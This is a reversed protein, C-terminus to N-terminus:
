PAVAGALVSRYFVALEPAGREAVALAATREADSAPTRCVALFQRHHARVQEFDSSRGVDRDGIVAFITEPKRRGRVAVTDLELAALDPVRALATESVIITVGYTKCLGELRSALNVADGIATYDFRQRSGLNGVIARGTNIGVGVALRAADLGVLSAMEGDLERVAAAMELAARIAHETHDPDDLPANWFAMVADGMYKDVTGGHRLVPETLVTLLRNVVRVLDGPRDALREAFATFGRMDCFLVTLERQEGGLKLLGPDRVIRDVMEPALYQRFARQVARRRARELLFRLPFACGIGAVVGVAPVVPPLWLGAGLLGASGGALAAVAGAGVAAGGLPGLRMAAVVGLGGLFASLLALFAGPVPAVMESSLALEAALAHFQVGSLIGGPDPNGDLPTMECPPTAQKAAIPVPDVFRYPSPKRDEEALWTGLFVLRGGLVARLGEPAGRACALVDALSLVPVAGPHVKPGLVIDGAAPQGALTLAAGVLTPLADGEATTTATPVRRFVGDPEPRLEMLGLSADGYGSAAVFSAAPLSGASRGLVVRGRGRYLARLLPADHGSILRNGAYSLLLDIGVVRAGADLLASVAEGLVPQMFPRPVDALDRAALSSQDIAVVAVHDARAPDARAPDSRLALALDYAAGNGAQFPGVLVGALGVFFAISIALALFSRGAGGFPGDRPPDTSVFSRSM